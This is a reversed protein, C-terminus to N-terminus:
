ESPLARELSRRLRGEMVNPIRAARQLAEQLVRVAESREGRRLAALGMMELVELPEQEVSVEASRQRLQRWTELDAEQATLEVMSFLVEESASLSGPQRQRALAERVQGLRERAQAHNGEWALVRAHLLLGWPRSAVEPHQRELEIARAIHPAAAASDGAQYYLEGLNHEAFYEWGVM